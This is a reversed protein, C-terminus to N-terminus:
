ELIRIRMVYFHQSPIECVTSARFGPRNGVIPSEAKILTNRVRAAGKALSEEVGGSTGAAWRVMGAPAPLETEEVGGSTGAAWRV